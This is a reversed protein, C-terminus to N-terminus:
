PSNEAAMNVPFRARLVSDGRLHIYKIALSGDFRRYGEQVAVVATMAHKCMVRM